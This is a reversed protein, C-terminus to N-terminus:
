HTRRSVSAQSLAREFRASEDEIRDKARERDTSGAKIPTAGTEGSPDATKKDRGDAYRNSLYSAEGKAASQAGKYDRATLHERADDEDEDPDDDPASAFLGVGSRYGAVVWYVYGAIIGSFAYAAVAYGNAITFQSGQEGAYIVGLGLLSIVLGAFVYFAWGRWGQVVGLLVAAFAFPAAFVAIQTAASAAIAVSFGLRQWRANDDLGYLDAPTIVFLVQTLAAAFCALVFGFLIRLAAAIM